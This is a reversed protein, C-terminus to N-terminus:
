KLKQLAKAYLEGCYGYGTIADKARDTLANQLYQMKANLSVDADDIILQFM